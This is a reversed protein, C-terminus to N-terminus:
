SVNKELCQCINPDDIHLAGAMYFTGPYQRIFHSIPDVVM